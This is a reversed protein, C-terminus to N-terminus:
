DEKKIKVFAKRMRNLNEDKKSMIDKKIKKRNESDKKRALSKCMDIFDDGFEDDDFDHDNARIIGRNHIILKYGTEVNVIYYDMTEIDIHVATNECECMGKICELLDKEYQTLEKKGWWGM